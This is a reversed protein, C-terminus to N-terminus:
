KGYRLDDFPLVVPNSLYQLTSNDRTLFAREAPVRELDLRLHCSHKARLPILVPNFSLDLFLFYCM